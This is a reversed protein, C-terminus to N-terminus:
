GTRSSIFEAVKRLHELDPRGEVKSRILFYGLGAAFGNSEFWRRRSEMLELAAAGQIDDYHELVIAKKNRDFFVFDPRVVGPAITGVIPHEYHFALKMHDLVNAIVALSRSRVLLGKESSDCRDGMWYRVLKTGSALADPSDQALDRTGLAYDACSAAGDDAAVTSRSNSIGM